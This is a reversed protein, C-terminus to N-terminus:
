LKGFALSDPNYVLDERSNARMTLRVEEFNPATFQVYVTIDKVQSFRNTNMQALIVTEQGPALTSQAAYASSCLGCSVRVNGIQVTKDTRNVVRFPHTLTQGRPASGFDYHTEEFLGDAWGNARASTALALLVVWTCSQRFMIVNNGQRFLKALM